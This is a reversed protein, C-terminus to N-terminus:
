STAAAAVIHADYGIIVGRLHKRRRAAAGDANNNITAAM